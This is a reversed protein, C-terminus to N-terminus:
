QQCKHLLRQLEPVLNITMVFNEKPNNRVYTMQARTLSHELIPRVCECYRKAYIGGAGSRICLDGMTADTNSVGESPDIIFAQANDIFVKLSPDNCSIAALITQADGQARGQVEADQVMDDMFEGPNRVANAMGLFQNKLLELGAAAAQDRSGFIGPGLEREIHARLLGAPIIGPCSPGITRLMSILIDYTRDRSDTLSRFDRRYVSSVIKSNRLSSATFVRDAESVPAPAIESFRGLPNTSGEPQASGAALAADSARQNQADFWNSLGRNYSAWLSSDKRGDGVGSEITELADRIASITQVDSAQAVVRPLDVIIDSRLKAVRAETTAMVEKYPRYAALKAFKRVATTQWTKLRLLGDVTQPLEQVSRREENLLPELNSAILAEGRALVPESDAALAGHTRLIAATSELKELRELSLAQGSQAEPENRLVAMAIKVQRERLPRLATERVQILAPALETEIPAIYESLAFFGGLDDSFRDGAESIRAVRSEIAPIRSFEQRLNDGSTFVRYFVNDFTSRDDFFLPHTTCAKTLKWWRSAAESDVRNRYDIGILSRGLYANALSDHFISVLFLLSRSDSGIPVSLDRDPAGIRIQQIWGELGTCFEFTDRTEALKVTPVFSKDTMAKQRLAVLAPPYSKRKLTYECSPTLRGQIASQSDRFSLDLQLPPDVSSGQLIWKRNSLKLGDLVRDYITDYRVIIPYIPIAANRDVNQDQDFIFYAVKSSDPKGMLVFQSDIASTGCRYNAEWVTRDNPSSADLQPRAMRVAPYAAFPGLEADSLQSAGGSGSLMQALVTNVRQKIGTANAEDLTAAFADLNKLVSLSPVPSNGIQGAVVKEVLASRRAEIAKMYVDRENPWLNSLHGRAERELAALVQLGEGSPPANALADNLGALWALSAALTRRAEYFQGGVELLNAGRQATQGKPRSVWTKRFANGAFFIVLSSSPVLNWSPVIRECNGATDALLKGEDDSIDDLNKGFFPRFRDDRLIGAFMVPERSPMSAYYGNYAIKSSGSKSFEQDIQHAWNAMAECMQEPTSPRLPTATKSSQSSQLTPPVIPYPAAPPALLSDPSANVLPPPSVGQPSVNTHNLESIRSRYLGAVCAPNTCRNRQALWGAQAARLEPMASGGAAQFAANLQQDLGLLRANACIMQEVPQGARSCDFSAPNASSNTSAAAKLEAIRAPYLETLCSPSACRNRQAIWRMQSNRIEPSASGGAATFAAYLQEDLESLRADACIMREVPHRARSCDFSAAKTCNVSFTGLLGFIVAVATFALRVM